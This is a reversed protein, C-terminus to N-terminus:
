ISIDWTPYIRYLPCTCNPSKQFPRPIKLFAVFIVSFYFLFIFSLSLLVLRAGGVPGAGTSTWCRQGLGSSYHGLGAGGGEVKHWFARPRTGTTRWCACSWRRGGGAQWKARARGPAAVGGGRGESVRGTGRGRRQDREVKCGLAACSVDMQMM